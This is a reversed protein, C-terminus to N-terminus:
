INYNRAGFLASGIRVMTAGEAIAECYDDSMGMSLVNMSINDIKKDSIDLFLKRMNEFYRCIKQKNDCIPPITMLGKVNIAKLQAIEYLLEELKEPAIGSKSEEGGINVEVLIDTEVNHKVSQNSIETALKISDVSEIMDVKGVIQRVKNSQLHGIMHLKTKDLNYSDYKSLLEQVRNEGIHDLGLSIAYNIYEPEVTKTAALFTIEDPNRGAKIASNFINERITKYNYEIDSLLRATM